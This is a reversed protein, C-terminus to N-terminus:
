RLFRVLYSRMQIFGFTVGSLWGGICGSVFVTAEPIHVIYIRYYLLADVAAFSAVAGLVFVRIFAKRAIGLFTGAVYFVLMQVGFSLAFGMFGARLIAYFDM